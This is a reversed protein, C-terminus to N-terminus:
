SQVEFAGQVFAVRGGTSEACQVLDDLRESALGHGGPGDVDSFGGSAQFEDGVRLTTGDPLLVTQQDEIWSTGSPCLLAQRGDQGVGLYLCEGDRVLRGGILAQEMGGDPPSAAIVASGSPEVPANQEAARIPSEPPDEQVVAGKDDSSTCGPALGAVFMVGVFPLSRFASSTVMTEIDALRESNGPRCSM